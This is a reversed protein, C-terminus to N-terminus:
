LRPHKGRKRLARRLFWDATEPMATALVLALRTPVSTWVEGRPKQLCKVIARAVREPPQMMSRPTRLALTADGEAVGERTRKAAEDFFETSTGIPHVSSVYIGRPRLEHRMARAVCDQAAKSACYAGYYPIGIKSLCSACILVHGRGHALMRSVAPRVVNMTGHFNVELMRRLEDDGMEHMPREVGIGANAFVGYLPGFADEAVEILRACAAPDTVDMALYVARGGEREIRSALERLRDERRAGLAVPMGARACAIATAAGIGSSAGTIAIPANRVPLM